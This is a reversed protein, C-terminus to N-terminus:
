GRQITFTWEDAQQESSLVKHGKRLAFAPVDSASEADSVIVRAVEGPQMRMLLKRLKLVPLPCTHGRADLEQDITM